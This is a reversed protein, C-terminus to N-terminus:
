FFSNAGPAYGYYPLGQFATAYPNFLQGPAAGMMGNFPGFAGENEAMAMQQAPDDERQIGAINCVARDAMDAVGAGISGVSSLVPGVGPIFSAVAGVIPDGAVDKVASLGGHVVEGAGKAVGKVVDGIADLPHGTVLDKVGEVVGGVVKGIGKVVGGIADGIGRIVGGM